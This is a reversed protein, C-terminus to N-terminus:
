VDSERSAAFERCTRGHSDAIIRESHQSALDQIPKERIPMGSASIEFVCGDYFL